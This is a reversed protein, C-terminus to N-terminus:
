DGLASLLAQVQEGTPQAQLDPPFFMSIPVKFLKALRELDKATPRYTATEWRSITNTPKGLKRALEAQTLEARSRTEAIRRGIFAYLEPAAQGASSQDALQIM